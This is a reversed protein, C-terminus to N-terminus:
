RTKGRATKRAQYKEPKGANARNSKEPRFPSSFVTDFDYIGKFDAISDKDTKGLRGEQILSFVINGVDETCKLGWESLVTSAMPGFEQLAFGKFAELLEVGSVHREPGHANKKMVKVACDLAERVFLYADPHYRVDVSCIKMVSDKFLNDSM